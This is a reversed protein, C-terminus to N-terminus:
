SFEVNVKKSKEYNNKTYTMERKIFQRKTYDFRDIIDIILVNSYDRGIRGISQVVNSRPTAFILVNLHPIDVGESMMAYTSFVVRKEKAINLIQKRDKMKGAYIISLEDGVREQLKELQSVRDSLVLIRNKIKLGIQAIIINNRKSDMSLKTIMQSFHIDKNKGITIENYNNIYSIALVKKVNSSIEDRQFSLINGLYWKIVRTLGDSRTPTASLGLQYKSGIYQFANSFSKTGLNHCEDVILFNHNYNIKKKSITQLMAIHIPEDGMEINKGQIIGIKVNGLFQKIREIWQDVLIEKNVVILTKLGLKSMIYLSMCTKGSGTGISLIMSGNKNIENLCKKVPNEQYERLKGKFKFDCKIHSRWYEDITPKFYRPIYIFKSNQIKFYATTPENEQNIFSLKIKNPNVTLNNILEQTYLIKNGCETLM